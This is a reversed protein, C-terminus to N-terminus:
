NGLKTKMHRLFDRRAFVEVCFQCAEFKEAEMHKDIFHKTADVKSEFRVGEVEFDKESTVM